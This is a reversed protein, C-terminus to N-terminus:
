KKGRKGKGAGRKSIKWERLRLNITAPSVGHEEAIAKATRGDEVYAKRLEAETINLKGRKRTKREQARSGPEFEQIRDLARHITESVVNPVAPTPAPAEIPATAAVAPGAMARMVETIKKSADTLSGLLDMLMRSLQDDTV